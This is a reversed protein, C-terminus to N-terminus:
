QPFYELWVKRESNDNHTLIVQMKHSYESDKEIAQLLNNRTTSDNRYQDTGLMFKWQAYQLNPNKELGAEEM